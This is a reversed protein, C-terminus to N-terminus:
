RAACEDILAAGGSQAAAATVGARITERRVGFDAIVKARRLRSEYSAASKLTSQARRTSATAALSGGPSIGLIEVPVVEDGFLLVVSHVPRVFEATRAGWRMRRAIPLAAIARNIIDGILAPPRRAANSAAICAALRGQRHHDARSRCVQVGCNRAFATAAQTPAGDADFAAKLPPGRREVRRDPAHEACSRILVALRRPTAFGRVKGHAIAASKLGDVIGETLAASM